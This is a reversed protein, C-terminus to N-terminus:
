DNEGETIKEVLSELLSVSLGVVTDFDGTYGLVFAGARGQIGYAGAKDMPEGSNVYSLIEEDTLNRFSVSTTAVGSLRRGKYFVAIGTHVNHSRGSLARLMRVAEEEDKPKGLPIGDLEVLTDSSICLADHARKAVGEGKRIAILEVGDKPHLSSHITEDVDETIIEFDSFLQKLLEKRRPSKSALIVRM